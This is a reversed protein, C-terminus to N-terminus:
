HRKNPVNCRDPNHGTEPSVLVSQSRGFTLGAMMPDLPRADCEPCSERLTMGKHIHNGQHACVCNRGSQRNLKQHECWQYWVCLHAM